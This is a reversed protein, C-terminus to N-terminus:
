VNPPPEQLNRPDAAVFTKLDFESGYSNDSEKADAISYFMYWNNYRGRVWVPVGERTEPPYPWVQNKDYNFPRHESVCLAADEFSVSYVGNVEDYTQLILFDFLAKAKLMEASRLRLEYAEIQSKEIYFNM